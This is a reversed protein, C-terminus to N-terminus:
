RRRLWWCFLGCLVVIEPLILGAFVLMLDFEEEAIRKTSPSFSRPRITIGLEEGVIWNASNLLFDRNYLQGLNVNNAFDADGIVVLRGSSGEQGDVPEGETKVVPTEVAVAIPVPGAVDGEELKAQPPDANLLELNSEAWSKSGTFALETSKLAKAEDVEVSTATSYVTSQVFDRTIQHDGYVAVIPQFGLSAPQYLHVIEDIVVNNGLKIGFERMLAALPLYSKYDALVLANGGHLLYEKLLRTVSPGYEQRPSVILLGDADKPIELGGAFSIGRVVINESALEKNLSAFGGDSEDLLDGEGNGTLSYLFRPKSRELKLLANTLLSESIEGSITQWRDDDTSLHVSGPESIGLKELLAPYREPDLEEWSFFESHMALQNLLERTGLEMEGPTLFARAKVHQNLRGLVDLTQPALSFISEETTDFRFFEQKLSILNISVLIFLFVASYVLTGLAFFIGKGFSRAFFLRSGGGFLFVALLLAGAIFHITVLSFRDDILLIQSLMGFGLVVLAALGILQLGRSVFSDKM